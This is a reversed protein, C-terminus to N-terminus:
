ARIKEMKMMKMELNAIRRELSIIEKKDAKKGLDKEYLNLEKKIDKLESKISILADEVNDFKEYVEDGFNSQWDFVAKFNDKTEKKFSVLEEELNRQGNELREQREELKGQREELRGQGEKLASFGDALFDFKENIEELIIEFRDKKDVKIDPKKITKKKM